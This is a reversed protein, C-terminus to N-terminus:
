QGPAQAGAVMQQHMQTTAGGISQPQQAPAPQASQGAGLVKVIDRLASAMQTLGKVAQPDVGAHAAETALKEVAAEADVACSHLDYAM